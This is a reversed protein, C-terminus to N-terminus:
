EGIRQWTVSSGAYEFEAQRKAKEVSEHWTDAFPAWSEDCSFLYVSSEQHGCILLGAAPGLLGEPSAHRCAGTARHRADIPTFWRVPMGNIERPVPRMPLGREGFVTAM